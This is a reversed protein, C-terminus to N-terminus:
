VEDTYFFTSVTASTDLLTRLREVEALNEETPSACATTIAEDLQAKLDDDFIKQDFESFNTAGFSRRVYYITIKDVIYPNTTFCGDSGPTEIDFIIEDAITPNENLRKAM